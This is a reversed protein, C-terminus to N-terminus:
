KHNSNEEIKQIFDVMIEILDEHDPNLIYKVGSEQSNQIDFKEGKLEEFKGDDM